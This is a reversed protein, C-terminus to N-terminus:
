VRNPAPEPQVVSRYFVRRRWANLRDQIAFEFIWAIVASLVVVSVACLFANSGWAFLRFSFLADLVLLHVLYLGYSMDGARSDMKGRVHAFITPLTLAVAGMFVVHRWLIGGEYSAGGFMFCLTSFAIVLPWGLIKGFTVKDRHFYLWMGFTFYGIQAFFPFYAWRFGFNV